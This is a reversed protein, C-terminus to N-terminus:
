RCANRRSGRGDIFDRLAVARQLQCAATVAMAPMAVTMVAVAMVAVVVALAVAPIRIAVVLAKAIIVGAMPPALLVEVLVAVLIM